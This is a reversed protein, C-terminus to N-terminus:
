VTQDNTNQKKMEAASRNLFALTEEGWSFQRMYEGCFARISDPKGALYDYYDCDLKTTDIGVMGRRRILVDPCGAQKLTQQLDSLLNQYYSGHQKLGNGDEWLCDALYNNPCLMGKQDILLAFLEWTKSFSFQLPENGVFVAFSGFTRVQLRRARNETAPYRLHALERQVKEPTVPKVFYGSVHMELAQEMYERFDTTFIINVRPNLKILHKALEIGSEARMRIDSFVTDPITERAAEIAAQASGFGFVTADPASKKVTETLLELAFPEDDVTFVIM